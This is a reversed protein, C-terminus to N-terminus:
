AVGRSHDGEHPSTKPRPWYPYKPMLSLYTTKSLYHKTKGTGLSYFLSVYNFEHCDLCYRFFQTGRLLNSPADLLQRTIGRCLPKKKARWTKDLDPFAM